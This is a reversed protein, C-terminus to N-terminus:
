ESQAFYHLVVFLPHLQTTVATNKTQYTGGWSSAATGDLPRECKVKDVRVVVAESVKMSGHSQGKGVVLVAAVNEQKQQKVKM